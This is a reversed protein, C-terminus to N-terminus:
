FGLNLKMEYTRLQPKNKTQQKKQSNSNKVARNLGSLALVRGVYLSNLANKHALVFLVFWWWGLYWRETLLQYYKAVNDWACFWRWEQALMKSQIDLGSPLIFFVAPVCLAPVLCYTFTILLRLASHCLLVKFTINLNKIFHKWRWPYEWVLMCAEVGRVGRRWM